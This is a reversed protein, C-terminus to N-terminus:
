ELQHGNQCIQASPNHDLLFSNPPISFSQVLPGQVESQKGQYFLIKEKLSLLLGM